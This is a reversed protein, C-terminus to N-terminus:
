SQRSQAVQKVVQKSGGNTITYTVLASDGTTMGQKNKIDFMFELTKNVEGKLFSLSQATLIEIEASYYAPADFLAILLAANAQRDQLYLERNGADSFCLYRSNVQDHYVEGVKEELTNKIFEQVRSGLVPLDETSSDGGWDTNKNIEKDYFKRAM